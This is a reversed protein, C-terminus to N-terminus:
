IINKNCFLYFFNDFSLFINEFSSSKKLHLYLNYFFSFTVDDYLIKEYFFLYNSFSINYRIFYILGLYFLNSYKFFFLFYLSFPINFRLLLELLSELQMNKAM